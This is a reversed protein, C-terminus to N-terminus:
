GFPHRPKIMKASVTVNRHPKVVALPDIKEIESRQQELVQSLATELLYETMVDDCARAAVLAQQIALVLHARKPDLERERCWGPRSNQFPLMSFM